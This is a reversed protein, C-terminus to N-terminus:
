SPKPLDEPFIKCIGYFGSTEDITWTNEGENSLFISLRLFASSPGETICLGLFYHFYKGFTGLLEM